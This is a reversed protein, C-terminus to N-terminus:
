EQNCFFDSHEEKWLEEQIRLCEERTISYPFLSYAEQQYEECGQMEKMALEALDDRTMM